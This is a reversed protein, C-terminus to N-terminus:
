ESISSRGSPAISKVASRSRGGVGTDMSIERGDEGAADVVEVLTGVGGAGTRISDVSGDFGYEAKECDVFYRMTPIDPRAPTKLGIEDLMKTGAMGVRALSNLLDSCSMEKATM